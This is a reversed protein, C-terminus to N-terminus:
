RTGLGLWCHLRTLAAPADGQLSSKMRLTRATSAHPSLRPAVQDDVTGRQEGPSAGIRSGGAAMRGSVMQGGEQAAEPDVGEDTATGAQREQEHDSGGIGVVCGEGLRQKNPRHPEEAQVWPHNPQIRGIPSQPQDRPNVGM